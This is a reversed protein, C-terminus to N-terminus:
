RAPFRVTALTQEQGFQSGRWPQKMPQRNRRRSETSLRPFFNFDGPVGRVLRFGRLLGEYFFRAFVPSGYLRSTASSSRRRYGTFISHGVFEPQGAQEVSPAALVFPSCAPTSDAVRHASRETCCVCFILKRLNAIQFEYKRALRRGPRQGLFLRVSSSFM